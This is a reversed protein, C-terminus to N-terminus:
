IHFESTLAELSQDISGRGEFGLFIFGVEYPTSVLTRTHEPLKTSRADGSGPQGVAGEALGM